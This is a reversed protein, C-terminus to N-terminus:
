KAGKKYEKAQERKLKDRLKKNQEKIRENENRIDVYDMFEQYLEEKIINKLTAIENELTNIKRQLEFEKFKEKLM